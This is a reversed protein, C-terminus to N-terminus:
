LGLGIIFKVSLLLCIITIIDGISAAAPLTVNDPDLGKRYSLVAIGSTTLSLIVGSLLGTTISILIFNVLSICPGGIYICAGWALVSLVFAIFVSLFISIEINKKLGKTMHTSSIYGLHLGSSLRAGLASSINGRMGLIGPVLILLGPAIAAEDMIGDLFGGTALEM